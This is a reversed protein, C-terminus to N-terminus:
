GKESLDESLWRIEDNRLRSNSSFLSFLYIFVEKCGNGLSLFSCCFFLVCVSCSCWHWYAGFTCCVVSVFFVTSEDQLLDFDKKIDVRVTVNRIKEKRKDTPIM